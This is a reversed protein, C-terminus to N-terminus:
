VGDLGPKGPERNCGRGDRRWGQGVGGARATAVPPAGRLPFGQTSARPRGARGVAGAGSPRSPALRKCPKGCKGAGSARLALINERVGVEPLAQPQLPTRTQCAERFGSVNGGGEGRNLRASSLTKARRRRAGSRRAAECRGAQSLRREIRTKRGDNRFNKAGFKSWKSWSVAIGFSVTRYRIDNNKLTNKRLVRNLFPSKQSEFDPPLSVTHTRGGRGAGIFDLM